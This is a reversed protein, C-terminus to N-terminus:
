FPTYPTILHNLFLAITFNLLLLNSGFSYGLSNLLILVMNSQKQVHLLPSPKVERNFRNRLLEIETDLVNDRSFGICKDLKNCNDM